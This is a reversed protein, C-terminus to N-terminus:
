CQFVERYLSMLLFFFVALSFWVFNLRFYLWYTARLIKKSKKAKKKKYFNKTQNEKTLKMFFYSYGESLCRSPLSHIRKWLM